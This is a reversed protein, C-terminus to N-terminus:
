IRITNEKLITEGQTTERLEIERSLERQQDHLVSIVNRLSTIEHEIEENAACRAEYSDSTEKAEKAKKEQRHALRKRALQEVAVSDSAGKTVEGVTVIPSHQRSRQASSNKQQPRAFISIHTDFAEPTGGTDASKMRSLPPQPTAQVTADSSCARSNTSDMKEPLRLEQLMKTQNPQM